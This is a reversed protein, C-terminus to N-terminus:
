GTGARGVERRAFRWLGFLATIGSYVLGFLAGAEAVMAWAVRRGDALLPVPSLRTLPQTAVNMVKFVALVVRDLGGMEPAESEVPIFYMGTVAVSEVYGASAILVLVFVSVFVAVPLSLLCGATVGLAALFALRAFIVLLGRTLNIAFGGCPVLLEMGGTGTGIVLTAPDRQPPNTLRVHVGEPSWAAVPVVLAASLGPANTSAIVSLPKSPSGFEWISEVPARNPRSSGLRVRLEMPGTPAVAGAPITLELSHGSQLAVSRVAGQATDGTETPKPATLGAAAWDPRFSNRAALLAEFQLDAAGAPRVAAVLGAVVLGTVALVAADLLVIGLWKGLWIEWRRVPKALVVFLRRDELEAAMTACGAWLTAASLLGVAAALAYELIVRLRGVATGDSQVLLPLGVLTLLLAVLLCAVVRSRIADRLTLGVVAALRSPNM